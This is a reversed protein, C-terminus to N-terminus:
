QSEIFGSGPSSMGRICVLRKRLLGIEARLPPSLQPQAILARNAAMANIAESPHYAHCQHAAVNEKPSAATRTGAHTKTEALTPLITPIRRNRTRLWAATSVPFAVWALRISFGWLVPMREIQSVARRANVAEHECAGTLGAFVRTRNVRSLRQLLWRANPSGPRRPNQIIGFKQTHVLVGTLPSVARSNQSGGGSRSM